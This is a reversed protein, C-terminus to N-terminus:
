NTDYKVREYCIDVVHTYCEQCVSLDDLEYGEQENLCNPMECMM